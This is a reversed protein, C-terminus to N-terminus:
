IAWGRNKRLLYIFFPAGVIATLVSIPIEKPSITRALTDVIIMFAIGISISAPLLVRHNSGFRMRCIHPVILGVWGVQGCMSICSATMMAACVETVIRLRRINVGSSIAEDMPLPLLNMRWRLLLLIITCIIIPPAGLALTEYGSGELSGLLWYTIEPLQSETDATFKVFSILSSFLSSIMIGALIPTTKSNNLGIGALGTIAVAGIGFVFALLQVGVMNFGLLLALVAGFGAGSAAGLTDPTALPNSFVSQFACGALSLGCGVLCAMLLRPIRISWVVTTIQSSVDSKIGIGQGIASFIDTPSILMRGACCGILLCLIPLAILFIWQGPSFADDVRLRVTKTSNASGIEVRKLVTVEERILYKQKRDKGETALQSSLVSCTNEM